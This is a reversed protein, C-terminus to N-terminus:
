QWNCGTLAQTHKLCAFTPPPRVVARKHRLQKALKARQQYEQAARFLREKISLPWASERRGGALSYAGSGSRARHLSGDLAGSARKKEPNAQVGGCQESRAQSACNHAFRHPMLPPTFFQKLLCSSSLAPLEVEKDFSRVCSIQAGNESKSPSPVKANRCACM